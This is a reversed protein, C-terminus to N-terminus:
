PLQLRLVWEGKRFKSKTHEVRWKTEATPGFTHGDGVVPGNEVLYMVLSYGIDALDAPETTSDIVELEAFGLHVMGCSSMSYPGDETEGSIVLGVWLHVPPVDALSDQVFTDPDHLHGGNGWYVGVAEGARCVAAAIRTAAMVAELPSEGGLATVLVHAQQARMAERADPWMWSRLVAEDVDPKPIPSPLPVVMVPVGGSVFSLVPHEGEAKEVPVDPFVERAARLISEQSLGEVTRMAVMCIQPGPGDGGRKRRRFLRGLM